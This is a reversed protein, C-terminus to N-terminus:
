DMPQLFSMYFLFFLHQTLTSVLLSNPHGPINYFILMTQFPLNNKIALVFHNTFWEESLAPTDWARQKCRWAVLLHDKPYGQPARPNKAHYMLM